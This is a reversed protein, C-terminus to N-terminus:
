VGRPGIQRMMYQGHCLGGLAFFAGHGVLPDAYGGVSTLSLAMPKAFAVQGM